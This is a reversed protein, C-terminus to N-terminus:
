DAPPKAQAPVIEKLKKTILDGAIKHGLATWHGDCSLYYQSLNPDIKPMADLGDIFHVNPHDKELQRFMKSSSPEGSASKKREFDISRPISYLVVQRPKGNQSLAIIRKLFHQAADLQSAKVDYYGSFEDVDRGVVHIIFFKVTAFSYTYYRFFKGLITLKDSNVFYLDAFSRVSKPKETTYFVEYSQDDRKRWYPRYRVSYSHKRRKWVAPDNDYYDNDPLFLLVVADHDYKDAFHKYLLYYQVPGVNGGSGFNLYDYGAAEIVSDFRDAKSVGQGEAFSDGLGIIRQRGNGDAEFSDDRAGVENSSYIHSFCSKTHKTKSNIRHWAGWPSSETRWEAFPPLKEMKAWVLPRYGVPLFGLEFVVASAAEFLLLFLVTSVTLGKFFGSM